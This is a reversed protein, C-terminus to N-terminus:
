SVIMLRIAERPTAPLAPLTELFAVMEAHNLTPLGQADAYECCALAFDAILTM